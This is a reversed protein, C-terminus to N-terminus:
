CFTATLNAGIDASIRPNVGRQKWHSPDDIGVFDRVYPAFIPQHYSMSRLIEDWRKDVAFHWPIEALDVVVPPFTNRRSRHLSSEVLNKHSFIIFEGIAVAFIVALTMCVLRGRISTMAPYVSPVRPRETASGTIIQSILM